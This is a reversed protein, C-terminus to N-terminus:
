RNNVYAILATRCVALEFTEAHLSSGDMRSDVEGSGFEIIVSFGESDANVQASLYKSRLLNLVKMASKLSTSPKYIKGRFLLKQVLADIVEGAPLADIYEPTLESTTPLNMGITKM